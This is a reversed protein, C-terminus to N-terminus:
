GFVGVPLEFGLYQQGAWEVDGYNEASPIQMYSCIGGLTPSALIAARISTAGTKAMYGLLLKQSSGSDQSGNLIKVVVAFNGTGDFTDDYTLFTGPGPVVVATPPNLSDPSLAYTRKALVDGALNTTIAAAVANVVALIDTM